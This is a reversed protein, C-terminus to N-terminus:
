NGVKDSFKRQFMTKRWPMFKNTFLWFEVTCIRELSNYKRAEKLMSPLRSCGTISPEFYDCFFTKVITVDNLWM